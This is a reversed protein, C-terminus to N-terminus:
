IKNLNCEFEPVRFNADLLYQWSDTIISLPDSNGTLPNNLILSLLVPYFKTMRTDCGGM